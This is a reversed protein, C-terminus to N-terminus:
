GFDGQRDGRAADAVREAKGEALLALPMAGDLSPLPTTLWAWAAYGDDFLRAVDKLGPVPRNQGDLQGAPFVYGRKANQWGVIRGKRRWDHVSQRTKLGARAALEDSSLLTEPAGDCARTSLRRNAESAGVVTPANGAVTEVEDPREWDDTTLADAVAALASRVAYPHAILAAVHVPSLRGAADHLMGELAKREQM